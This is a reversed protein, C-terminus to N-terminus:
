DQHFQSDFAQGLGIGITHTREVVNRQGDWGSHVPQQPRVAGAFGREHTRDRSKLFWVGPLNLEARDVDKALFLFEALGQSVQRLLKSNIRTGRRLVHQTM